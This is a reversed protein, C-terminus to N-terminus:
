YERKITMLIQNMKFERRWLIAKRDLYNENCFYYSYYSDAFIEEPNYTEESLLFLDHVKCYIGVYTARERDGDIDKPDLQVIKLGDTEIPYIMETLGTFFVTDEFKVTAKLMEIKHEIVLRAQQCREYAVRNAYNQKEDRVLYWNFFGFILATPVIGIFLSALDFEM